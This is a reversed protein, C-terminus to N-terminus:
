TRHAATESMAVVRPEGHVILVTRDRRHRAAIRALDQPGIRAHPRLVDVHGAGVVGECEGGHQLELVVAEALLALAAIIDAAARDPEAPPAGVVRAAAM